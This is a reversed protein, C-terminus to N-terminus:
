KQTTAFYYINQPMLTFLYMGGGFLQSGSGRMDGLIIWHMGLIYLM